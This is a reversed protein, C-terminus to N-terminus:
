RVKEKENWAGDIPTVEFDISLPVIIWDFEKRIEKTGIRNVTEIIHDQEDPVLDFVISDYIQGIIKSGWKEKKSIENVQILTWLLCHFATGQTQYNTVDNRGMYGTYRFGMHTEIYGHKRYFKNIDKKWQAYVPFREEWMIREAEKCHNEFYEKDTVWSSKKNFGAIHDELIIGSTTKLNFCDKILSEACQMYWDGYFQPFTWDNKVRDRIDDTIEKKTLQWIDCAGDRHMDSKPNTVYNIMTPDHHYCCSINVEIGKFDFEGLKNGKSPIIGGRCINKAEKDRRPINTFNPKSGSPRYTRTTHLDFIPYMIDGVSERQFQAIYTGMVKELKRKRLLKRTFDSDTQELANVDVCYNKGKGDQTKIVPFKLVEYLLIGMDKNSTLKLERNEREKFKKGEVGNVLENGMETIQKTLRKRKREYYLDDVPIGNEQIDSFVELGDMFFMFAKKKKGKLEQQQKLFLKYGGLSDMGGYGLLKDLPAEMVRNFGTSDKSELYKKMEKDYPNIGFQIYLQFTLSSFYQRNDLVHSCNMTCWHWPDPVTNFIVRSWSDEFKSNQAVKKIKPHKLIKIWRKRIQRLQLPTWYNNFEYPFSYAHLPTISSTFSISAIKSGEKHPKIGTTEYDFFFYKPQWHLVDELANCVKDFTKLVKVQKWEDKFEPFEKGIQLCAFKIDREFVSKLNYNKSDRMPYSPHFMPLVWANVDRDPICLGRWRNIACDSIKQGLFSKVAMGGFLWIQEPKLEEVVKRIRPRCYKIEADTPPRNATKKPNMPRCGLSNDKWFDKDLDLGNKKLETRLVDGADGSFQIGSEDETAGNAEGWILVKQRGKGTWKMKPTQCKRDLGCKLCHPETIIQDAPKMKKIDFLKRTTL